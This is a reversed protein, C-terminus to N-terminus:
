SAGTLLELAHELLNLFLEGLLQGNCVRLIGLVLIKHVYSVLLM